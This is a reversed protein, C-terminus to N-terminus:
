HDDDDNDHEHDHQEAAEAEEEAALAEEQAIFAQEEAALAEEEVALAEEQAILAQEEAALAEEEAIRAMEEALQVREAAEAFVLEEAARTHEEATLAEEEAVRALENAQLAEEFAETREVYRDQLEDIREEIEEARDKLEDAQKELIDAQREIAESQQEIDRAQRELAEAKAEIQREKSEDDSDASSRLEDGAERLEDAKERLEDAAERVDDARKELSEAAEEIARMKAELSARESAFVGVHERQRRMAGRFASVARAAARPRSVERRGFGELLQPAVPAVMFQPSAESRGDNSPHILQVFAEFVHQQRGNGHVEIGDELPRILIPVDSRVMLEALAELKGQPLKYTRVLEEGDNDGGFFRIGPEPVFFHEMHPGRPLAPPCPPSPPCPPRPPSPANPACPACPACPECPSCPGCPACPACPPQPGPRRGEFPGRRGRERRGEVRREARQKARKGRKAAKAKRKEHVVKEQKFKAEKCCPKNGCKCGTDGSKCPKKSCKCGTDRCKCPKKGRQRDLKALQAALRDLEAGLRELREAVEDDDPGGLALNGAGLALLPAYGLASGLVLTPEAYETNQDRQAMYQEFTRLAYSEAQVKGCKNCPKNEKCKVCPASATARYKHVVGAEVSKKKPPCSRAPTALWSSGAVALVLAIGTLSLRPKVSKTMVMTLRRAFRGARGTTVAIGTTPVWRTEQRSYQKTRLLAEAYARRETPLLSTVWADCCVEAEAHLRSRIWWVLPHWWYLLGVIAEVWAVWHDRRRLHALEHYIVARRGAEDLESWLKTPLILRPKHVCWVMPSVRSQVMWTQPINRLGLVNAAEVVVRRVSQPALTASAIRRRFQVTRLVVWLALVVAGGLWVNAPIPPLKTVMDRVALAAATWERWFTSGTLPQGDDAPHARGPTPEPSAAILGSARAPPFTHGGLADSGQAPRATLVPPPEDPCGSRLRPVVRVADRLAAVSARQPAYGSFTTPGRALSWGESTAAPLRKSLRPGSAISGFYPTDVNRCWPRDHNRDTEPESLALPGGPCNAQALMQPADAGECAYGRKGRNPSSASRAGTTRVASRRWSPLAPNRRTQPNHPAWRTGDATDPRSAAVLGHGLEASKGPVADQEATVEPEPEDEIRLWSHAFSFSDALDAPVKPLLPAALLWVLVVLWLMHRTAPRCPLLRTLVVVVFALPIAALAYQWLTDTPLVTSLGM